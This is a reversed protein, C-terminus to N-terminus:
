AKSAKAIAAQLDELEECGKPCLIKLHEENLRAKGLQGTEVFLEGQYELAGLHNANLDLAKKYYDFAQKQDGTKRLCFGVLNFLDAHITNVLMPRMLTLAGAYDKAKIKVRAAALDPAAYPSVTDAANAWPMSGLLLVAVMCAILRRM